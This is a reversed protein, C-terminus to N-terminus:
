KDQDRDKLMMKTQNFKVFTQVFREDNDRSTKKNINESITLARKSFNHLNAHFLKDWSFKVVPINAFGRVDKIDLIMKKLLLTCDIFAYEM